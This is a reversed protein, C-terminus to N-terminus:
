RDEVVTVLRVTLSGATRNVTVTKFYQANPIDIVDGASVAAAVVLTYDDSGDSGTVSMEGSTSASVLAKSGIGGESRQTLTTTTADLETKATYSIQSSM